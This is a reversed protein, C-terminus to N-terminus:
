PLPLELRMEKGDRLVVVALKEGPRTNRGVHELIQSLSGIGTRRDGVAVILDGTRFGALELPTGLRDIRLAIADPALTLKRREEESLPAAQLDPRFFEWTAQRWSTDGSRRWGAPLVMSLSEERGGRKVVASLTSGDTAGHLIWQLDAISVIPQGELRLLDDGEKFGAKGAASGPAVRRVTAREEPDMTLGLADPMPYPWLLEVPIPERAARHVAIQAAPVDHCHMCTANNLEGAKPDVKAPFRALTPYDQPIKVRPAPGTKGRLSAKNAPYARHLELAALAAKRFGADTVDNPKALASRSGYRGYITRDANMFLVAWTLGFDFQFAALDLSNAQVVRVCVFKELV